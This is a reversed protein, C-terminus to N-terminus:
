GRLLDARFSYQTSRKQHHRELAIEVLTTVLTEFPVDSAEWLYYALSGPMTNVENLYLQKRQRDFLFDVRAVGAAGLVRFAQISLEQARRRLAPEIPAPLLRNVGAMGQGDSRPGLKKGSKKYKEDFTLVADASQPQECESAREPPGSVSCNIEIFDVLAPEVLARQDLALALDLADTLSARDECRAVGVSSGLAAPKVVAPYPQVKEVREVTATADNDWQSREVVSCPLTPIGASNFLQKSLIKDMGVASALVGAGVYPVDAMEFVGQISGDEGFTGHIIPFFVDAWYQEPPALLSRIWNRRPGVLGKLSRDPSLSARVVGKATTPDFDSQTFLKLNHLSRGVYWDGNVTVYVPLLDYGAHELADMAQHATIISVEHEVSRGGFVVAIREEKVM